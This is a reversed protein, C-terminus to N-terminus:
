LTWNEIVISEIGLFHKDNNTILVRQHVVATCGILLDFEDIPTGKKRLRAKETAYYDYAPLLPLCQISSIFQEVVQQLIDKKPSTSLAVGFKLEAITLESIACNTWGANQIKARLDFLGKLYYSCINTDLLYQKM